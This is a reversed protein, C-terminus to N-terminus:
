HGAPAIAGFALILAYIAVVVGSILVVLRLDNWKMGLDFIFVARDLPPRLNSPHAGEISFSRLVTKHNRALQKTRQAM